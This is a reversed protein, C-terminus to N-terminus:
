SDDSEEDFGFVEAIVDLVAQSRDSAKVYAVPGALLTRAVTHATQELVARDDADKLRGAFRDVVREVIDDSTRMLGGIVPGVSVHNTLHRYADAAAATVMADADNRRPRRDAMHALDDIDVYRVDSDSPPAFDPPMAM